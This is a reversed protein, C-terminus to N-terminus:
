EGALWLFLRKRLSVPQAVRRAVSPARGVAKETRKVPKVPASPIYDGGSAVPTPIGKLEAMPRMSGDAMVGIPVSIMRHTMKKPVELAKVTKEHLYGVRGLEIRMITIPSVGVAQAMQAQTFGLAKRRERIVEGMRKPDELKM